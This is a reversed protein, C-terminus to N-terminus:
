NKGVNILAIRTTGSHPPHRCILNAPTGLTVRHTRPCATQSWCWARCRVDLKGQVQKQLRSRLAGWPTHWLRLPVGAWAGPAQPGPSDVERGKEKEKEEGRNREEGKEGKMKPHINPALLETSIGLPM